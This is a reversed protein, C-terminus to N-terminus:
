AEILELNSEKALEKVIKKAISHAKDDIVVRRTRVSSYDVAYSILNRLTKADDKFQRLVYNPVIHGYCEDTKLARSTFLAAYHNGGVGVTPICKVSDSLSTIVSRAVVEQAEKILWEDLSSGLEVFTIPRRVRFPGHHTVEYTVTFDSLKLLDRYKVLNLLLSKALPPNSPPLYPLNASLSLDHIPIGVHHTTFSKIHQASSHKSLVVYYDVDLLDDLFEFETVVSNFGILVANLDKIVHAKLGNIISEVGSVLSLIVDAIGKGAEDLTSFVIGVSSL